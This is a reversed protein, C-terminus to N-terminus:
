LECFKNQFFNIGWACVRSFAAMEVMEGIIQDMEDLVKQKDYLVNVPITYDSIYPGFSFSSHFFKFYGYIRSMFSINFIKVGQNQTVSVLKRSLESIQNQKVRLKKKARLLYM